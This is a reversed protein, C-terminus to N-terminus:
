FLEKNLKMELESWLEKSLISEFSFDVEINSSKLIFGSAIHATHEMLEFDAGSAALAKKTEAEKGKAGMVKGEKFEKKARKFLDELIKEYNKSDTLAKVSKDFIESLLDRKAKLLANRTQMKAFTHARAKIKNVSDDVRVQMDAKKGSRVKEAEKQISYIEEDRTANLKAVQADAEKQIQELIDSLAM